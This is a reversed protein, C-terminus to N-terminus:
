LHRIHRMWDSSRFSLSFVVLLVAFVISLFSLILGAIALGQGRERQAVGAVVCPVVGAGPVLPAPM